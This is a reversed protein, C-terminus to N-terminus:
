YGGSSVVSLNLLGYQYCLDLVQVLKEHPTANACMLLTSQTKDLAAAKELLAALQRLDVQLGNITFGEPIIQIRLVGIPKPRPDGTEIPAPRSVDLNALVAVPQVTIIFFSLLQFAVDIMATLNLEGARMDNRRRIRAM